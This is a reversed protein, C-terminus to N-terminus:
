LCWFSRFLFELKLIIIIWPLCYPLIFSPLNDSSQSLVKYLHSGLKKKLETMNYFIMSTLLLISVRKQATVTQPKTSLYWRKPPLEQKWRLPMDALSPFIIISSVVYLLYFSSFGALHCEEFNTSKDSMFQIILDQFILRTPSIILMVSVFFEVSLKALFGSFSFQFILVSRVFCHSATYKFFM